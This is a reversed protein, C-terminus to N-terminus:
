ATAGLASQVNGRGKLRVQERLVAVLDGGSIRFVGKLTAEVAGPDGASARDRGTLPQVQAGKPLKLLEPGADGVVALGAGTINGGKALYPIDPTSLTAGGISGLGPISVSPITFSLGNWKGIIWNIAGRFSDKFSDFLGSAARGIKGPLSKVFGVFWSIKDGVWNIAKKAGDIISGYVGSFVKWWLKGAGVVKDIAWKWGDVIWDIVWKLAAGLGEWITQFFQTQTALYVIAAVLAVVGLVIWTIPSTWLTLNMITQVVTWIKMATVIGYIAAAFIGLGTALPTIWGSNESLWGFTKEIMPIAAALKDVLAAQVERKFSALKQSATEELAKGAKDSAGAVDGLGAAATDLDLGGLAAQLDEAKTGFLAVAAAERETPDKMAQIRELVEGLADRAAPGGAAIKATMKEANLGILAFGEASAKSGDAGRIAFEKLADAVTDIDRAGAKVGQVMLGMAEAGDLGLKRFQTGYESFTDTLDGAQDGTLQAGRTLLDMAEAADGALGTKIMQGAARTAQTVDMDFTNALTMAKATIDEIVAADADPDLLGSQMVARAADMAETASQGFGRGYVDGAAAGVRAALEPDGLQASLRGRAADLDMGGMLGAGIGAALAAGALPGAREAHDKMKGMGTKARDFGRQLPGDDATFVTYLEGLKLAM